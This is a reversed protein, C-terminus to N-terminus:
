WLCHLLMFQQGLLGQVVKVDFIRSLKDLSWLTHGDQDEEAGDICGQWRM